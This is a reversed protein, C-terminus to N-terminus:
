PICLALKYLHYSSICSRSVHLSSKHFLLLFLFLFSTTPLSTSRHALERPYKGGRACFRFGRERSVLKGGHPTSSDHQNEETLSLSLSSLSLSTSSSPYSLFTKRWFSSWEVSLLPKWPYFLSLYLPATRTELVTSLEFASQLSRLRKEGVISCTIPM